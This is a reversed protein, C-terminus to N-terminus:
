VAGSTSGANPGLQQVIQPEKEGDAEPHHGLLAKVGLTLVERPRTWEGM